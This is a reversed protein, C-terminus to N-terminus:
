RYPDAVQVGFYNDTVPREPPPTQALAQACPLLLILLSFGFRRHIM